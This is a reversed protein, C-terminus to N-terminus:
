RHFVGPVYLTLVTWPSGEGTNLGAGDLIISSVTFFIRHEKLVQGFKLTLLCNVQVFLGLRKHRVVGLRTCSLLPPSRM